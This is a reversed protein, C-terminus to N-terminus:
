TGPWAATEMALCYGCCCCDGSGEISGDLRVTRPCPEGTPTRYRTTDGTSVADTAPEARPEM